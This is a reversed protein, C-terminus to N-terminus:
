KSNEATRKKNLDAAVGPCADILSQTKEIYLSQPFMEKLKTLAEEAPVCKGFSNVYISAIKYLCFDSKGSAPFFDFIAKYTKILELGLYFDDKTKSELDKELSNAYELYGTLMSMDQSIDQADVRVEPKDDVKPLAPTDSTSRIIHPTIFVMLESQSKSSSHRKFLWGVGPLSSLGPVGNNSQDDNKNILGGIIITENDKVRITADAERTTIRPGAEPDISVVSSVEPHVKMTIWGEASVLPTVKLTTGVEAFQVVSNTTTGGTGSSISNTSSKYPIRDGIIIRAELGSLTAISPSALIHANSRQILADISLNASLNKFQPAFKLLAGDVDKAVSGTSINKLDKVPDGGRPFNWATGIKEVDERKIDVIRAEILVQLPAQDVSKILDKMKQLNEPSDMVILSNTSENIQITGRKSLAQSVLDKSTKAYIYNLPMSETSLAMEAEPIIYVVNEKRYYGYGNSKLIADFADDLSINKLQASVKGTVDKGIIINLNYSYALSKLVTTLNANTYDLSVQQAPTTPPVVTTELARLPVQTVGLIFVTMFILRRIQLPM